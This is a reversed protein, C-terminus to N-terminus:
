MLIRARRQFGANAWGREDRGISSIKCMQMNDYFGKNRFGKYLGINPSGCKKNLSGGLSHIDDPCRLIPNKSLAGCLIM